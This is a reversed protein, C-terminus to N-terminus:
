PTPPTPAPAKRRIRLLALGYACASVLLALWCDFAADQFSAEFSAAQTCLLCCVANFVLGFWLIIRLTNPRSGSAIVILASSGFM